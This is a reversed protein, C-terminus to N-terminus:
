EQRAPPPSRGPCAAAGRDSAVTLPRPPSASMDASAAPAWLPWLPSLPVACWPLRPSPPATLAPCPTISQHSPRHRPPHPPLSPTLRTLPLLFLPSAPAPLPLLDVQLQGEPPGACCPRAKLPTSRTQGPWRAAQCLSADCCRVAEAALHVLRRVGNRAHTASERAVSVLSSLDANRSPLSDLM